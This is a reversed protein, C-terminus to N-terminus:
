LALAAEKAIAKIEGRTVAIDALEYDTLSNLENSVREFEARRAFSARVSATVSAFRDALTIQAFSQSVYAM